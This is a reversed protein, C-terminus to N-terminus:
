RSFSLASDLTWAVQGLVKMHVASASVQGVRGRNESVPVMWSSQDMRGADHQNESLM